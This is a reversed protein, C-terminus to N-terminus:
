PKPASLTSKKTIKKLPKKTANSTSSESSVFSESSENKQKKQITQTMQTKETLITLMRALARKERRYKATDKEKQLRIGMGLKAVLGRQATVDKALDGHTMNRLEKTTITSAM